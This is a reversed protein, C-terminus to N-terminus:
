PATYTIILQPRNAAITANGSYLLLYNALLNNNDDKAFRLRFQTTGDVNVFTFATSKLHVTYWGNSDAVAGFTGAVNMGALRPKNGFDALQLAVTSGYNPKKVDVVLGNLKTFITSGGVIKQKKVMITVDSITAGTPLSSTDFSLISRYQKNLADDGVRLTAAKKNLLGGRGSFEGSELIWGDNLGDSAFQATLQVANVTLTGPVYNTASFDYNADSGGSCTIPWSGEGPDAPTVICSPPTDIDAPSDGVALDGAAYQFTFTPLPDGHNISQNDATVTTIHRPQIVGVASVTSVDYNAGGNGDSVWGAVSLTKGTGAAASDFVQSFGFTDGSQILGSTITPLVSSSVTGDYQKTDTGASVTLPRQSIDALGPALSLDINYNGADGGSLSVGFPSVTKNVGANKNDFKGTGSIIIEDGAVKDSSFTVVADTNGDYMKDAGSVNMYIHLDAKTINATGTPQTLSYNDKQAGTLAYGYATVTKGNQVNKDSFVAGAASHDLFVQDPFIVGTSLSGYAAIAANANGDYPKNGPVFGQVTLPIGHVTLSGLGSVGGVTVTINTVGGPTSATTHLTLVPTMPNTGGCGNPFELISPSFDWTVGSPLVSSVVPTFNNAGGNGACLVTVVYSVDGATGYTVSGSPGGVGVSQIYVGGPGAYAPSVAAFLMFAVLGLALPWRAANRVLSSLNINM